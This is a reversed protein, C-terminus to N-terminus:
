AKKLSVEQFQCFGYGISANAGVQIPQDGQLAKNFNDFHNNESEPVWILVFFVSQRPVIQEYWLNTSRGDELSNRAIVPLHNDDCLVGFRQDDIIALDNGVLAELHDVELSAHHSAEKDYDELFVDHGQTNGLFHHAFPGDHSQLQILAELETQKDAELKMGFAKLSTKLHNLADPCTTRFFPRYGSRVPLTLLHADFFRYNGAQNNADEKTSEKGFVYQVLDHNRGLKQTFFERLAGKLSSGNITPRATASDRQVLNDIIGYTQKGSGVHMNTQTTIFYLKPTYKM